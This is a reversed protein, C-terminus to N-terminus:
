STTPLPSHFRQTMPGDISPAIIAMAAKSLPVVHDVATKYRAAPITWVGDAIESWRADAAENRRTATLLLFRIYRGFPASRAGVGEATAWIARLEADTLIRDRESATTRAMGRVIPSRFEDDRAAHWNFLKSLYALVTHAARPGSRDEIRDLLAVIESRRIESIPRAGFAPIIHRDFVARREDATRLASGERTMYDSFIASLSSPADPLTVQHGVFGERQFRGIVGQGPHELASRARVDSLGQM